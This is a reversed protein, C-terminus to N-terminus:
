KLAACKEKIQKRTKLKKQQREIVRNACDSQYLLYIKM